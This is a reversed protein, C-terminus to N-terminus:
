KLGAAPLTASHITRIAADCNGGSSGGHSADGNALIQSNAGLNLNDSAVLEIVGNVDRVSNAQLIGDQNVARANMAITGADATIHGENDVSGEPLNVQM